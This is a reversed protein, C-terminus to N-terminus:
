TNTIKIKIAVHLLAGPKKISHANEEEISMMPQNSQM